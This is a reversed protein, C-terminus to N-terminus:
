YTLSDGADIDSFNNAINLSFSSDENVTQNGIATATPADNINNVTLQFSNDVTANNSDTAIVKIDLNGVDSNTPTGTFTQTTSNFTLWSPLTTGDALTATYTLSDGADIDSFNNAINLNFNSDETATQSPITTTTPADNVNNVTLQFSNEVTANSSDKAIVKIDLTGVDANTPTGTFTGTTTNFTLWSPLVTGDALTATYTLTDGADIDSFNNVINLNFSSDENVTQATIPTATPADNVNNVTLQFSNEVTANSSDKAIVKIDLTGVDANTPTGTFTGTTTNFTLWSPLVTGDALTATYTLTDGADIDSFNNVINLNFSSDETATQATIPTATPADNVNAVNATPSSNVTEATGLLDTYSV